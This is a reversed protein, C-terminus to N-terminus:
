FYNAHLAIVLLHVPHKLSSDNIATEKVSEIIITKYALIKIAPSYDAIKFVLEVEFRSL